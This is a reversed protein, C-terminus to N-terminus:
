FTNTSQSVAMLSGLLMMSHIKFQINTLEVEKVHCKHLDEMKYTKM